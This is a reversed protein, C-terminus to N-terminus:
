SFKCHSEAGPSRKVSGRVSYWNVQFYKVFIKQFQSWDFKTNVGESPCLSVTPFFYLLRDTTLEIGM